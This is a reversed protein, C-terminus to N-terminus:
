PPKCFITQTPPLWSLLQLIVAEMSFLSWSLKPQFDLQTRWLNPASVIAPNLTSPVTLITHELNIGDVRAMTVPKATVGDLDMTTSQTIAATPIMGELGTGDVKAVTAPKAIAGNLNRGPSKAGELIMILAIWQSSAPQDEMLASALPRPTSEGLSTQHCRSPTGIPTGDLLNRGPTAPAEESDEM